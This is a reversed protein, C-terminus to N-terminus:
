RSLRQKAESDNADLALAKRWAAQADDLKGMASLVDGLLVQYRARRPRLKTAAQAQPLASGPENLRLLTEGLGARAHPNAADLTLAQEFAPRAGAPNREALMRQGQRLLDALDGAPVTTPAAPQAAPLV